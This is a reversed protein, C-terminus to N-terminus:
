NLNYIIYIQISILLIKYRRFVSYCRISSTFKLDCIANKEDSYQGCVIEANLKMNYLSRAIKAHNDEYIYLYEIYM